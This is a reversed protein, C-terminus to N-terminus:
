KEVCYLHALTGCGLDVGSFASWNAMSGGVVGHTAGGSLLTWESCNPGLSTGSASTGTWVGSAAAVATGNEDIFPTRALSGDTLDAWSTALVMDLVDVYALSGHVLRVTVPSATTSTWAEFHRAKIKATSSAAALADCHAAGTAPEAVTAAVLDSTVFVYRQCAVAGPCAPPVFQDPTAGDAADATAGDVVAGDVVAGDPLIVAGDVLVVSGEPFDAADPAGNPLRPDVPVPDPDVALLTGCAMGGLAMLSVIGLLV